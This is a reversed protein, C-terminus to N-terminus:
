QIYVLNVYCLCIVHWWFHNLISYLTRLPNNIEGPTHVNAVKDEPSRPEVQYM